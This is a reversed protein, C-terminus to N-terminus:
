VASAKLRKEMVFRTLMVGNREVREEEVVVFGQRDFFPRAALSVEAFLREVGAARWQAEVREYLMSAIGRRACRSATYLQAVHGDPEYGLFGCLGEEDEAVLMEMKALNTRWRALDSVDPAWAKRQAEDYFPIALVHVSDHFLGAIAGLDDEVRVHRIHITM